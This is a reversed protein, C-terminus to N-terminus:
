RIVRVRIVEESANLQEAVEPKIEGTVDLITYAYDKRSKSQMNEINIGMDALKGSFRSITNPINRHLICIREGDRAMSVAPMNVSHRINGNELYEKLEDAAMRACNEESEPTSAGLHPLAIINPNSIMEPAPFDTAYAAVKGNEVAQLMAKTDVLGGRAFNLVRVGKKMKSLADEGIMGKTDPTQPVHITIYDCDQWITDLTRAHHVSRSLGWASDVSLFPDYGYVEMGLSKAANAVLVGIAGLGIVGLKKGSIEPGAFQSKGKEIQKPIDSGTLTKCWEIGPVIKRSTLFLGCLVLEKVANANAGPTNFVVIGQKSCKDLPINNVGAGARAIALIKDSFTMDLMSASRVMIADPDQVDQGAEYEKGFRATGAPSIKNLYQIKYM